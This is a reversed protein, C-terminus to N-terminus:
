KMHEMIEEGAKSLTEIQVERGASHFALHCVLDASPLLPFGKEPWEILCISDSTFYDRIGIQELEFADELRYLDLHFIKKGEAEYPEILTYTPSKVKGEVGLARLFGRAFTTKGAGLQGELFIVAPPTVVKALQAALLLLEEETVLSKKIM